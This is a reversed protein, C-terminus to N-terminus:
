PSRPAPLTIGGFAVKKKFHFHEFVLLVLFCYVFDLSGTGDWFFRYLNNIFNFRLCFAFRKKSSNKQRILEENQKTKLICKIQAWGM